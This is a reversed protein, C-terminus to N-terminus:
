SFLISLLIGSSRSNLLSGYVSLKTRVLDTRRFRAQQDRLQPDVADKVRDLIVMNLVKGCVSLLM